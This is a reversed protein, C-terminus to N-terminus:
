RRCAASRAARGCRRRVRLLAAVRARQAEVQQGRGVAQQADEDHASSAPVTTMWRAAIAVASHIPCRRSPHFPTATTAASRASTRGRSRGPAASGATSGTGGARQGPDDDQQRRPRHQAAVVPHEDREDDGGREAGLGVNGVEGETDPHHDSPRPAAARCIRRAGSTSRPAATACRTTSRRCRRRATAAAPPRGASSGAPCCGGARRGSRSAARPPSRRRRHRGCRAAGGRRRTRARDALEDPGVAEDVGGGGRTAGDREDHPDDGRDHRPPDAASRQADSCTTTPTASASPVIEIVRM